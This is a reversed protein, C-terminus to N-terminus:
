TGDRIRTAHDEQLACGARLFDLLINLEEQSYGSLSAMGAAAIPGYLEDLLHLAAETAEVSVSRRDQRDRVRRAYGARELRDIATTIAGPSLESKKALEGATLPGEVSLLGLCRLDTRNIGLREAVVEDVKDTANQLAFIAHAVEQILQEQQDNSM